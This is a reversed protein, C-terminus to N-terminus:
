RGRRLLWILGVIVAGVALYMWPLGGEDAALAQGSPTELLDSYRAGRRQEAETVERNGSATVLSVSTTKGAHGMVETGEPPEFEFESPDIEPNLEHSTTHCKSSEALRMQGDGRQVYRVSTWETPIWVGAMDRSAEIDVQFSVRDERGIERRVAMFDREPDVWIRNLEQIELSKINQLILCRRGDITGTRPTLQWGTADYPGFGSLGSRFTHFIPWVFSGEAPHHTLGGKGSRPYYYARPHVQDTRDDRGFFVLDQKGDFLRLFDEELVKEAGRNWEEGHCEFRLLDGSIVVECRRNLTLDKPPFPRGEDDKVRM